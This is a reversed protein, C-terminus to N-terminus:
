QKMLKKVQQFVMKQTDTYHKVIEKQWFVEAKKESKVLLNCFSRLNGNLHRVHDFLADDFFLLPHNCLQDLELIANQLAPVSNMAAYARNREYFLPRLTVKIQRLAEDVRRLHHLCDVRHLVLEAESRVAPDIPEMIQQQRLVAQLHDLKLNTSGFYSYLVKLVMYLERINGSWHQKQLESLMNKPLRAQDSNSIRRWIDVALDPVDQPHSRLSPTYIVFARLRYYLDERFQRKQVMAYLDRSTSAIMRAKIEVREKGDVRHLAHTNLVSLIKAQQSLPLDGIEDFFLIGNGALEWLGKKNLPSNPMTGREHGYLETEFLNGPIGSCNVIIFPTSKSKNTAQHICRAATEKGTGSEGVILVPDSHEAACLILQHVLQVEPSKGVFMKKLEAPAERPSLLHLLSSEEASVEARAVPATEESASEQMAEFLEENISICYLNNDNKIGARALLVRISRLLKSKEQYVGQILPMKEKQLMVAALEKAPNKKGCDTFYESLQLLENRVGDRIVLVAPAHRKKAAAWEQGSHASLRIKRLAMNPSTLILAEFNM